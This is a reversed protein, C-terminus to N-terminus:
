CNPLGPTSELGLVLQAPSFWYGHYLEFSQLRTTNEFFPILWTQITRIDKESCIYNDRVSLSSVSHHFNELLEQLPKEVAALDTPSTCFRLELEKCGSIKEKLKDLLKPSSPYIDLTLKELELMNTKLLNNFKKCVPPLNKYIYDYKLYRCIQKFPVDPVDQLGRLYTM